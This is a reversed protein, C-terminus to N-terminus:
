LPKKHTTGCSERVVLRVSFAIRKELPAGELAAMLNKALTRGLKFDERNITTLAPSGFASQRIDDFGTVAIQEPVSIGTAKLAGVVGIAMQDNACFIVEPLCGGSRVLSCTMSFAIDERFDGRMMWEAPCALAKEAIYASFAADRAGADYSEKTGGMFAIKRYGHEVLHDLVQRVGGVNDVEAFQINPAAELAPYAPCDTICIPLGSKAIEAMRAKPVYAGGLIIAADIRHDRIMMYGTSTDAMIKAIIFDYGSDRLIEDIGQIIEFYYPSDMHSVFLGIVHTKHTKLSKAFSNPVYQLDNAIQLIRNRTEKGVKPIGNLAYSATSISVGAKKAIDKISTKKSGRIEKIPM